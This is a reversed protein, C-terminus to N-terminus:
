IDLYEAFHFHPVKTLHSTQIQIDNLDHPSRGFLISYASFNGLHNLLFYKLM